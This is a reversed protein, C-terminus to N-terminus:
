WARWAARARPAIGIPWHRISSRSDGLTPGYMLSVRAEGLATWRMRPRVGSSVIRQSWASRVAAPM